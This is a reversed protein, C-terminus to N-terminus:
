PCLVPVFFHTFMTLPFQNHDGMVIVDYHARHRRLDGAKRNNVWGNNIRAWISSVEFSQTVPRQAPFEGACLALLASFTEMQNRWWAIDQCSVYIRWPSNKCVGHSTVSRSKGPLAKVWPSTALVTAKYVWIMIGCHKLYGVINWDTVSIHVHIETVFYHM